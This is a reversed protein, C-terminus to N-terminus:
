GSILYNQDFLVEVFLAIKPFEMNACVSGFIMHNSHMNKWHRDWQMECSIEYWRGHKQIGLIGKIWPENSNMGKWEEVDVYIGMVTLHEGATDWSGRHYRKFGQRLHQLIWWCGLLQPKGCLWWCEVSHGPHWQWWLQIMTVYPSTIHIDVTYM